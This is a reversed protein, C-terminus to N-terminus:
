HARELRACRNEHRVAAPVQHVLQGLLTRSLAEGKRGKIASKRVEERRTPSSFSVSIGSYAISRSLRRLMLEEGNEGFV